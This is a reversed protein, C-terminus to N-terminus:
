SGPHMGRSGGPSSGTTSRPGGHPAEGLVERAFAEHLRFATASALPDLVRVFRSSFFARELEERRWVGTV